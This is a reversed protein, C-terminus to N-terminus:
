VHGRAKLKNMSKLIAESSLGVKRALAYVEQLPRNQKGSPTYTYRSLYTTRWQNSPDRYQIKWRKGIIYISGVGSKKLKNRKQAKREKLEQSEELLTLVQQKLTDNEQQTKELAKQVRQSERQEQRKWAQIEQRRERHKQRTEETTACAKLPKRLPSPKGSFFTTLPSTTDSQPKCEEPSTHMSSCYPLLLDSFEPESWVCPRGESTMDYFAYVVHFADPSTSTNQSANKSCLGELYQILLMDRQVLPTNYHTQGVQFAHPNFRILYLPKDEQGKGKLTNRIGNLVVLMRVGEQTLDYSKHQKEDVEFACIFSAFEILTDVAFGQVKFEKAVHAARGSKQLWFQLLNDMRYSSQHKVGHEAIISQSSARLYNEWQEQFDQLEM